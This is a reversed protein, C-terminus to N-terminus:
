GGSLWYTPEKQEEIAHRARPSPYLAALSGLDSIAAKYIRFGREMPPKDLAGTRQFKGDSEAKGMDWQVVGPDKGKPVSVVVDGLKVKPPIGGGIGVMLGLKISPFTNVMRTAIVAAQNTGIIGKPLCSIVINHYGISGLIYNSADNSPKPLTPHEVDLMVRAATLETSLACIWGITYDKHSKPEYEPPLASSPDPDSSQSM